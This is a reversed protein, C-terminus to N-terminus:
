KSVRAPPEPFYKRVIDTCERLARIQAAEAGTIGSADTAVHVAYITTAVKDVVESPYTPDAYAVQAAHYAALAANLSVLSHYNFDAADKANNAANRVQALTIIERRAWGEAMEIAVLPRNENNRINPLALRACECAALVLPRRGESGPPGAAKGLLRLMLAGDKCQKWEESTM